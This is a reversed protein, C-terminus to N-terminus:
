VARPPLFTGALEEGYVAMDPATPLGLSRLEDAIEGSGLTMEVQSPDIMAAGMEITLPLETPTGDLYSYTVTETATPADDTLTRPFRVTMAEAGESVLRVEVVDGDYTYTLDEVTKPLGLVQNGAKMTFEQDVPMRYVFAGAREPQGAPHALLGLNVENYDGWPNTVYDVLAVLFMAQGPAIEVVEFADGPLLARAPEIPVTYTLTLQRMDEVVMPFDISVGDIEGWHSDQTDDTVTM